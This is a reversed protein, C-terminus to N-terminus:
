RLANSAVAMLYRGYDSKALARGLDMLQDSNIFGQEFAIEEPCASGCAKASRSPAFSIRRRSDAADPTGTDLWAIGRGLREVDFSGADLYARNVDTIELEGRPPRSSRRPSTSSKTTTSISAPSRGTRNRRRPSRRSASPADRTTSSWWATASPISSAIASCRRAATQDRATECCLDSGAATSSITAWSWRSPDGGVFDAGISSPRPSARRAAAARCLQDVPGLARRRRASAPVAAPRAADLHRLIDRIGALMLTSLPYYIMPKDYVPLLQKSTVMTMPHLRTGTGGALIIGKM